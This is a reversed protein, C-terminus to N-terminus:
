QNAALRGLREHLQLRAGVEGGRARQVSVVGAHALAVDPGVQALDALVARRLIIALRIVFWCFFRGPFLLQEFLENLVFAEPDDAGLVGKFGADDVEEVADARDARVGGRKLVVSVFLAVLADPHRDPDVIKVRDGKKVAPKSSSTISKKSGNDLAVTVIPLLNENNSAACAKLLRVEEDAELWKIRGEPERELKIKPVQALVGWEEHALRLLHRLLALPRNIAAASLPTPNGQADKRRVSTSTLRREKYAAIRGPQTALEKLRTEKGFEKKLHEALRRDEALSRKRTKLRFYREFGRELTMNPDDGGPAGAELRKVIKAAHETAEAETAFLPRSRAPGLGPPNPHDVEWKQRDQRFRVVVLRKPKM